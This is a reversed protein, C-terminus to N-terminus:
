ALTPACYLGLCNPGVLRIKGRRSIALISDQLRKGEDSGGEGFGATFFSAIRDVSLECPIEKRFLGAWSEEMLKRRKPGLHEWPDFLSVPKRDKTYVM